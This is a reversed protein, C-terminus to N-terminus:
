GAIFIAAIDVRGDAMPAYAIRVDQWPFIMAGAGGERERLKVALLNRETADVMMARMAQMVRLQGARDMALYAARATESLEYWQNDFPDPIVM